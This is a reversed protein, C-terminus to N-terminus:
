IRGQEREVNEQIQERTLFPERTEADPFITLHGSLGRKIIDCAFEIAIIMYIKELRTEVGTGRDQEVMRYFSIPGTHTHQSLFRYMMRFNDKYVGMRDLLEDQIFPTKTGKLAEKRRKADFTALYPNAGFRNVLDNFVEDGGDPRADGHFAKIRSGFDHLQLLIIRGNRVGDDVADECLWYYLLYLESLNRILSAVASFDWHEGRKPAPLLREISMATVALRTFLVSAHFMQNGACPLGGSGRSVREARKVLNQFHSKIETYSATLQPNSLEGYGRESKEAEIPM